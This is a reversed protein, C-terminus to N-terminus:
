GVIKPKSAGALNMAYFKHDAAGLSTGAGDQYVVHAAVGVIKAATEEEGAGFFFSVV